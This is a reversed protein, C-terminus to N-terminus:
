HGQATERMRQVDARHQDAQQVGPAYQFPNFGALALLALISIEALFTGAAEKM